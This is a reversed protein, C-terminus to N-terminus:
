DLRAGFIAVSDGGGVRALETAHWGTPFIDALLVFDNELDERAEGLVKLCNADAFPIRVLEAQAGAYDGQNPYGYAAGASGPNSILCAAGCGRV